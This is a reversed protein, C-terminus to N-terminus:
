RSKKNSKPKDLVLYVKKIIKNEYLKDIIEKKTCKNLHCFDDLYSVKNLKDKRKYVNSVIHPQSKFIKGVFTYKSNNLDKKGNKGIKWAEASNIVKLKKYIASEKIVRKNSM